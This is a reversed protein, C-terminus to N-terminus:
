HRPTYRLEVVLDNENIQEFTATYEVNLHFSTQRDTVCLMAFASFRSIKRMKSITENAIWRLYKISTNKLDNNELSAKKRM